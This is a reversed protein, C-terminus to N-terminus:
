GQGGYPYIPWDSRIDLGDGGNKLVYQRYSEAQERRWAKTWAHVKELTSDAPFKPSKLLKLALRGAMIADAKANHADDADIGHLKAVDALRRSGKRWKDIAKDLVLPDIVPELPFDIGAGTHRRLERDLLTLDYPANYIVLPRAGFMLELALSAAIDRVAKDAKQGETAAHATTIGHVATAAEPIPIGPEVLWSRGRLHAGTRDIVGVHATVIRDSEVDVGTTETDFIVLEDPIM